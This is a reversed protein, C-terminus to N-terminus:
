LLLCDQSGPGEEELWWGWTDGTSIVGVERSCGPSSRGMEAMLVSVPIVAGGLSLLPSALSNIVPAMLAGCCGHLPCSPAALSGLGAASFAPGPTGRPCAKAAQGHGTAVAFPLPALLALAADAPQQCPLSRAHLYCCQRPM